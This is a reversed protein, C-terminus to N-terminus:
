AAQRAYGSPSAQATVVQTNPKPLYSNVPNAPAGPASTPRVLENATYSPKPLPKNNSEFSLVYTGDPNVKAVKGPYTKGDQVVIADDNVQYVPDAEDIAAALARIEDLLQIRETIHLFGTNYDPELWKRQIAERYGDEGLVSQLAGPM